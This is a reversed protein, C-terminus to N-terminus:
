DRPSPSTYLLCRCLDDYAERRGGSFGGGHICIVTPFPGNASAPRALNLRLSEGSPESFVLGAQFRIDEGRVSGSSLVMAVIGLRLTNM